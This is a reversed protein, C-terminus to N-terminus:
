IKKMNEKDEKEKEKKKRKEIKSRCGLQLNPRAEIPRWTFNLHQFGYPQFYWVWELGMGSDGAFSSESSSYIVVPGKFRSITVSVLDVPSLSDPVIQVGSAGYVGVLTLNATVVCYLYLVEFLSFGM